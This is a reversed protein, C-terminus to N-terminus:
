PWQACARGTSSSGAVRRHRTRRSARRRIVSRRRHAPRFLPQAVAQLDSHDRMAPVRTSAPGGTSRAMLPQVHALVIWSMQAASMPWMSAVVAGILTQPSLWPRKLHRSGSPHSARCHDDRRDSLVVPAPWRSALISAISARVEPRGQECKNVGAAFHRGGETHIRRKLTRKQEDLQSFVPLEQGFLTRM